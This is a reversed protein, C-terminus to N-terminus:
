LEVPKAEPAKQKNVGMQCNGQFIAGDQIVLQKTKINGEFVSSGELVLKESCEVNGKVSGAVVANVTKVEGQITGNKEVILDGDISISGEVVGAVRVDSNGVIDGKIKVSNGIQTIEQEGNKAM